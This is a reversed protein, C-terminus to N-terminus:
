QVHVGRLSTYLRPTSSYSSSVPVVGKSLRRDCLRSVGLHQPDDALLSGRGRRMRTLPKPSVGGLTEAPRFQSV